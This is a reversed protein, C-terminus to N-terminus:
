NIKIKIKKTRRAPNITFQEPCTTFQEPNTTFQEPNTTFQRPRVLSSSSNASLGSRLFFPNGLWLANARRTAPVDLTRLKMLTTMTMYTCRQIYSVFQRIMKTLQLNILSYQTIENTIKFRPTNMM